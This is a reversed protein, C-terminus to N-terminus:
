LRPSMASVEAREGDVPEPRHFAISLLAPAAILVVWTVSIAAVEFRYDLRVRYFASYFVLLALTLALHTSGRSVDV